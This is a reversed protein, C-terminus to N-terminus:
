KRWLEEFMREGGADWGAKINSSLRLHRIHRVALKGSNTIGKTDKSKIRPSCKSKNM